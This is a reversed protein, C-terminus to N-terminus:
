VMIFAQWHNQGVSGLMSPVRTVEEVEMVCLDEVWKVGVWGGQVRVVGKQYKLRSTAENVKPAVKRKRGTWQPVDALVKLQSMHWKYLLSASLRAEMYLRGLTCMSVCKSVHDSRCIYLWMNNTPTYLNHCYNGTVGEYKMVRWM